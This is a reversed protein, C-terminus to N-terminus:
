ESLLRSKIVEWSEGEMPNNREIQYRAELKESLNKPLETKEEDTLEEL